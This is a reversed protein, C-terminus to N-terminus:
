RPPFGLSGTVDFTPLVLHFVLANLICARLVLIVRVHFGQFGLLHVWVGWVGYIYIKKKKKKNNIISDGGGAVAPDAHM